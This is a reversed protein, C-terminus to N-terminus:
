PNEDVLKHPAYIADMDEGVQGVHREELKGWARHFVFAIIAVVVAATGVVVIVPTVWAYHNKATTTMQSRAGSWPMVALLAGIAVGICTWGLSGAWPLPNALEAIRRRIRKWDSHRMPFCPEPEPVSLLAGPLTVYGGSPQSPQPATM